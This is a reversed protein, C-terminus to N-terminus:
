VCKGYVYAYVDHSHNVCEFNDLGRQLSFHAMANEYM